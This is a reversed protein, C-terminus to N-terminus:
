LHFSIFTFQIKTSSKQLISANSIHWWYSQVRSQWDHRQNKADDNKKESFKMEIMTITAAAKIPSKSSSLRNMFDCSNKCNLLSFSENQRQWLFKRSTHLYDIIQKEFSSWSAENRSSYIYFRHNCYLVLYVDTQYMKGVEYIKKFLCNKRKRFRERAIRQSCKSKKKDITKM